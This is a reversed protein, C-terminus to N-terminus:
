VAMKLLDFIFRLFVPEIFWVPSTLLFTIKGGPMNEECIVPRKPDKWPRTHTKNIVLIQFPLCPSPLHHQVREGRSSSELWAVSDSLARALMHTRSSWECVAKIIINYGIKMLPASRQSKADLVTEADRGQLASRGGTAKPNDETEGGQWDFPGMQGPEKLIAAMSQHSTDSITFLYPARVWM